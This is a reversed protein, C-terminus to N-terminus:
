KAIAQHIFDSVGLKDDAYNRDPLTLSVCDIPICGPTWLAWRVSKASSDVWFTPFSIRDPDVNLAAADAAQFLTRSM